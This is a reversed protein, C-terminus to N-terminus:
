QLLGSAERLYIRQTACFNGFSFEVRVEKGERSFEVKPNTRCCITIAAAQSWIKDADTTFRGNDDWFCNNSVMFSPLHRSTLLATFRIPRWIELSEGGGCLALYFGVDNAEDVKIYLRVEFFQDIVELDNFVLRKISNSASLDTVNHM